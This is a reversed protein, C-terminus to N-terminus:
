ISVMSAYAKYADLVRQSAKTFVGHQLMQLEVDSQWMRNVNGEQRMILGQAKNADNADNFLQVCTRKVVGKIDAPLDSPNQQTADKPLIYGAEYIVTAKLLSHQPYRALGVHTRSMPLARGVQLTGEELSLNDTYKMVEEITIPYQSQIEKVEKIPRHTVQIQPNTSLTVHEVYERKGLPRKIYSEVEASVENILSSLKQIVVEHEFDFDEPITPSFQLEYVLEDLTLLANDNLYENTLNM